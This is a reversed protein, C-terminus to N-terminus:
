QLYRLLDRSMQRKEFNYVSLPELWDYGLYTAKGCTVLPLMKSEASGLRCEGLIVCFRERKVRGELQVTLCGVRRGTFGARAEHYFFKCTSAEFHSGFWSQIM